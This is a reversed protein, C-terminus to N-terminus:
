GILYTPKSRNTSFGYWVGFFSAKSKKFFSRGGDRYTRISILVETISWMMIHSLSKEIQYLFVSGNMLFHKDTSSAGGGKQDIRSVDFANVVGMFAFM